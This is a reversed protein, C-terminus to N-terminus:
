GNDLIDDSNIYKCTLRVTEVAARVDHVRLINAGGLLALTHLATAGNLSDAPTTELLNYIMSKRSLGVLLPLGFVAFDELRRLLQYNQNLTKGFGFGPDLIVDNVGLLELEYVKDAFYKRIDVTLNEYAAHQQMTQPTGAIHVLIYPVHLRAVASFMDSDLTGGSIDNIIAAGYDEVCRRAIGARFTDVSYVADPYHKSLIRLAPVLRRMEEEPTIDEAGPRSSYGGVDILRGGEELITQIRADIAAETQKRSGAYFSDPTVNLIVMVIPIQLSLLTGKINITNSNM